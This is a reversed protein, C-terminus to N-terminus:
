NHEKHVGKSHCSVLPILWWLVFWIPNWLGLSPVSEKQKTGTFIWLAWSMESRSGRSVTRKWFQFHGSFSSFFGSFSQPHNTVSLFRKGQTIALSIRIELLSIPWSGGCEGLSVRGWFPIIGRKLIALPFYYKWSNIFFNYRWLGRPCVEGKPHLSHGLPM